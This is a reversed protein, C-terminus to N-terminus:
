YSLRKKLWKEFLVDYLCYNGNKYIVDNAVLSKLARDLISTASIGARALNITSFIKKGGSLLLLKITRKQNLTLTQWLNQYDLEKAQLMQSEIGDAMEELIQNNIQKKEPLIEWLQHFFRQILMPHNRFQNIIKSMFSYPMRINNQSFLDSLWLLYEKEEITPLLLTDALNYFARSRDSFMESLLHQQSGAFIYSVRNQTQIYTRLIKEFHGGSYAAVEQFEDLAIVLRRKEAYHNIIKMLDSLLVESDRAELSTTFPMGGDGFLAEIGLTFKLQKAGRGFFQLLKQMSGELRSLGEHLKICFDQESLTGFLDIHITSIELDEKKVVDFAKLILSSKGFRRHSYILLNHSTRAYRVITEIEKARNCFSVGSALSHYVFPNEM